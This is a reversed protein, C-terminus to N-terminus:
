AAVTKRRRVVVMMGMGGLLLLASAPLPVPALRINDLGVVESNGSWSELRIQISNVNSIVNMWRTDSVGFAAATFGVSTTMWDFSPAGSYMDTQVSQGGGFITLRGFSPILSTELSLGHVFDLSLVGGDFSSLDGAWGNGFFVEITENDADKTLLAPDGPSSAGVDRVGFTAGTATWGNIGGSFDEFLATSAGAQGAMFMAAVFILKKLV